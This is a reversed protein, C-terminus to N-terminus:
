ETITPTLGGIGLIQWIESPIPVGLLQLAFAIGGAIAIGYTKKGQLWTVVKKIKDM